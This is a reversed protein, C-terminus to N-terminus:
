NWSGELAESAEWLTKAVADDPAAALPEAAKRQIFYRGTVNAVEPSSALYIITDAGRERPIALTQVLPMLRGTWGGSSSGFRTAVFAPIFASQPSAPGPSVAPSNLTVFSIPL